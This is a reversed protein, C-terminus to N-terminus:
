KIISFISSKSFFYFISIGLFNSLLDSFEFSRYPIILGQVAELLIGLSLCIFISHMKSNKIKWDHSLALFLVLSLSFYFFCHVLSEIEFSKNISIVTKTFKFEKLSLFIIFLCDSISLITFFFKFQLLKKM